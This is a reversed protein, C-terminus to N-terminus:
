APTPKAQAVDDAPPQADPGGAAKIWKDYIAQWRGDSKMDKIIDDVFAVFDDKGKKIGAGYPETTWTGGELQFQAPDSKLFGLLINDDTTVADVQDSQLLQFCQAYGDQLNVTFGPRYVKVNKESTSGKASCVKKGSTASGLPRSKKTLFSQGAVYYVVSFDIQTKREATITMTSFVIDVKDENLFPIRNASLAEVYEPTVGLAKAIENGMDVDFGEPKSTSPNLLGFQPVDFKVGIRLKGAKQITDMTSGAAFTPKGGATGGDDDGGCAAAALVLLLGAAIVRSRRM